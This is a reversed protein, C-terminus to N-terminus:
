DTTPDAADPSAMEAYGELVDAIRLLLEALQPSDFDIVKRLGSIRGRFEDIEHRIKNGWRKTREVQEQSHQLRRKAAELEQKEEICSPKNEKIGRMQCSQLALRAAAVRDFGKRVQLQWYHPRDHEVWQAVRQLEMGIAELSMQSEDRFKLVAARFRRVEPIARINAPGTM